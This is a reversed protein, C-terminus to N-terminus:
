TVFFFGRVEVSFISIFLYSGTTRLCTGNLSLLILNNGAPSGRRRRDRLGPQKGIEKRSIEPGVLGRMDPAARPTQPM